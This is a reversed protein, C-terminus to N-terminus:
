SYRFLFHGSKKRERKNGLPVFIIEELWALLPPDRHKEASLLLTATCTPIKCRVLPYRMHPYGPIKQWILLFFFATNEAKVKEIRRETGKTGKRKTEKKRSISELFHKLGSTPGGTTLQPHIDKEGM